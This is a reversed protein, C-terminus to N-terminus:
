IQYVPEPACGARARDVLDAVTTSELVGMSAEYMRAWVDQTVCSARRPCSDPDETCPVYPESGVLAEYVERLNIEEAPRALLYGGQPGRQSQVIGAARLRGFLAELYKASLEQSEAVEGVNVPADPERMALEVLARTGYRMKTNLKM